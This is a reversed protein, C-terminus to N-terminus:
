VAAEGTLAAEVQRHFGRVTMTLDTIRTVWLCNRRFRLSTAAFAAVGALVVAGGLKLPLGFVCSVMVAPVLGIVLILSALELGDSRQWRRRCALCIPLILVSRKRNLLWVLGTVGFGVPGLCLLPFLLVYLWQPVWDFTRRWIHLGDPTGCKVCLAPLQAAMPIEIGRATRHGLPQDQTTGNPASQPAAYPNDVFSM